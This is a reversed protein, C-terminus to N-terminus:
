HWAVITLALVLLAAGFAAIESQWIVHALAISGSLGTILDLWWVLLRPATPVWFLRAISIISILVISASVVYNMLPELAARLAATQDSARWIVYALVVVGSLGTILDPWWFISRPAIPMWFPRAISIVSALVISAAVVYQM